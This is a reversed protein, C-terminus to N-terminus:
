YNNIKIIKYNKNFIIFIKLWKANYVCHLVNDGTKTISNTEEKKIHNDIEKFNTCNYEKCIGDKDIIYASTNNIYFNDFEKERTLKSIKLGNLTYCYLNFIDKNNFKEKTYIYLLDYSSLKFDIVNLNCGIKIINLFEFSYANNITIYGKECSSIIINLRQSFLIGNILSYHAKSRKFNNSLSIIKFEKKKENYETIIEIISIYGEADGSFIKNIHIETNTSSTSKRLHIHSKIATIACPWEIFIKQKESFLLLTNNSLRCLLYVNEYLEVFLNRYPKIDLINMNEELSINKEPLDKGNECVYTFIKLNNEFLFLIKLNGGDLNNFICKLNSLDEKNIFDILYKNIGYNITKKKFYTKENEIQKRNEQTSTNINDIKKKSYKEKEPHPNKFLQLPTLGLSLMELKGRISKLKENIIKVNINTNKEENIMEKQKEFNNFQEYSYTPFMNYEKIDDNIQNFGFINNIWPSLEKKELINRLNIIFEVISCNQNNNFHHIQKKDLNFYGFDNYNLNLFSEYNYFFEPCLERNEDSISFVYLLNELSTFMRSPSDFHGSQLKIQCNTFPIMRMLYYNIYAMTSYHINFHYGMTEYNNEFKLYDEKTLERNMCIPKDLKREKKKETDLYLLPFILYQNNDNYTRTSFKNVLLLYQFNSIESKVYKNKYDNNEFYNKPDNIYLPEAINNYLYSYIGSNKDGEKLKSNFKNIKEKLSNFFKKRNDINFFNFFFSRNDKTFIEYAIDTFCYRRLIVEKIENYYIVMHKNRGKLRDVNDSSFLYFIKQDVKEHVLRKDKLSNDEFTMLSNQLHIAGFISGKNSINECKVRFESKKKNIILNIKEYEILGIKDEDSIDKQVITKKLNSHASYFYETQSYNLIPKLFPRYYDNCTFNKLKTPYDLSFDEEEPISHELDIDKYRIKFAYKLKKFLKSNYIFKKFIFGFTRMIERKPILIIKTNKPEDKSNLKRYYFCPIDFDKLKDILYQHNPDIEIERTVNEKEELMNKHIKSIYLNNTNRTEDESLKSKQINQVEEKYSFETLEPENENCSLLNRNLNISSIFNKKNLYFAKKRKKYKEETYNIYNNCQYNSNFNLNNSENFSNESNSEDIINVNTNVTSIDKSCSLDSIDFNTKTEKTPLKPTKIKVNNNDNDIEDKDLREMINNYKILDENLSNSRRTIFEKYETNPNNISDKQKIRLLLDGEDPLCSSKRYKSLINISPDSKDLISLDSNDFLNLPSNYNKEIKHMLKSNKLYKQFYAFIQKSETLKFNNDKYKSLFHEFMIYYVKFQIENITSKNKIKKIQKIYKQIISICDKFIIELGKNIFAILDNESKNKEKKLKKSSNKLKYFFYTFFYISNLTSDQNTADCYDTSIKQNNLLRIMNTNFVNINKNNNSESLFYDDIQYFITNNEKIKLSSYLISILDSDENKNLLFFAIDLTIESLFKYYKKEKEKDKEKETSLKKKKEKINNNNNKIKQENVIVNDDILNINFIYKSFLYNNELIYKLYNIITKQAASIIFSNDNSQIINYIRILIVISNLILIDNNIKAKNDNSLDVTKIKITNYSLIINKMIMKLLETKYNKSIKINKNLDIFPLLLYFYFPNYVRNLSFSMYKDITKLDKLEQENYINFYLIFLLKICSSAFLKSIFENESNNDSNNIQNNNNKTGIEDMKIVKDLFDTILKISKKLLKFLYNDSSSSYQNYLYCFYKIIAELKPIFYQFDILSLININGKRMINLLIDIENEYYLSSKIFKLKQQNDINFCQIFICRIFNYNPSLMFGFPAYSFVSNNQNEKIRLDYLLFCLIQINRCYKCNNDIIKNYNSFIYRIFNDNDNYYSKLSDYNYYIIKLYHYIKKLSKINLFYQIFNENISDKTKLKKNETLFYTIIKMYNKHKTEKSKIEFFDDFLLLKYFMFVSNNKDNNKIHYLMEDFLRNYNVINNRKFLKTDFLISFILDQLITTNKKQFIEVFDLLVGRIKEDFDFNRKKTNLVTVLSILFTCFKNEVKFTNKDKEIFFIEDAMKIVELVTHLTKYLCLNMLDNDDILSKIKHLQFTLFELGHQFIFNIISYNMHYIKINLNDINNDDKEKITNAENNNKLYKLEGYPKIIISKKKHLINQVEKSLLKLICQYKLNNLFVIDSNEKTYNKKKLTFDYRNNISCIVDSYNEKLNYIHFIENSKIKKNIVVVDGFIGEFNNKGLEFTVNQEFDIFDFLNSTLHEHSSKNSDKEKKKEINNIYLSIKKKEILMKKEQTICVLYDKDLDISIGSNWEVNKKGTVKLMKSNQALSIKLISKRSNNVLNLIITDESNNSIKTLRFSFILTYCTTKIQVNNLSLPVNNYIYFGDKIIFTNSLRQTHEEKFLECLFDLSNIYYDFSVASKEYINKYLFINEFSFKYIKVLFSLIRDYHLQTKSDSSIIKNGLLKLWLHLKNVHIYYPYKFINKELITIIQGILKIHLSRNILNKPISNLTNFLDNIFYMPSNNIKISNDIIQDEKIIIDIITNIFISIILILNEIPFINNYTMVILIKIFKQNLTSNKSNINDKIIYMISKTVKSIFDCNQNEINQFKLEKRINILKHMYEITRICKKFYFKTKSKGLFFDDFKKSLLFNNYNINISISHTSENTEKEYKIDLLKITSNIFDIKIKNKVNKIPMNINM